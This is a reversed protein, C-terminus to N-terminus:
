LLMTAPKEIFQKFCQLWKAGDTGDVARHDCSLTVKMMSRVKVMDGEPTTEVVPQKTVAGVALIAAQPPNIVASFEDVGFMGLNSISFTGGELDSLQLAGQQAQDALRKSQSAIGLLGEKDVQRVVPTFLGKDTSVAMAIHVDEFRKIATESYESNLAPVKKLALGAAKIMLDNLSIKQEEQSNMQEKFTLLTDMQCISTLYFHPITQKSEVLRKAITKRVPSVPIELYNTRENQSTFAQGSVRVSEAVKPQQQETAISVVSSSKAVHKEARHDQVVEDAKLSQDACKNSESARQVDEKSVRGRPGTGQIDQLSIGLQKALKRASPSAKVEAEPAKSESADNSALANADVITASAEAAGQVDNDVSDLQQIYSGIFSEIDADSADGEVCVGLLSGVPLTVGTQAVRRRLVGSYNSEVTNVIKSTEIDVLEDGKHIVSGEEVHWEAITGEEMEMGWKPVIIAQISSM